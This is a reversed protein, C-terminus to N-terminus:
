EGEDLIRRLRRRLQPDARAEDVFHAVAADGYDRVTERVAIAAENPVAAEYHYGRGVRRRSVIEKEALRTLVTMVTTYALSPTRRRNLRELVERVSLPESSSWLARMIEGELPGLVSRVDDRGAVRVIMAVVRADYFGGIYPTPVANV